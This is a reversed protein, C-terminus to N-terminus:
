KELSRAWGNIHFHNKDEHLHFENEFSLYQLKGRKSLTPKQFESIICSISRQNMSWNKVYRQM